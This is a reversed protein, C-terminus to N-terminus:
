LKNRDALVRMICGVGAKETLIAHWKLLSNCAEVEELGRYLYKMLVDQEEGSLEDIVGAIEKEQVGQIAKVVVKMSSKRVDPSKASYPPDTLAAKLAASPRSLLQLVQKERAQIAVRHQEDESPM